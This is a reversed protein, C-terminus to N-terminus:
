DGRDLKQIVKIILAVADDLKEPKVKDLTDQPSHIFKTDKNSLFFAAEVKQKKFPAHDSNNGLMTNYSRAEIHNEEATKAIVTNLKENFTKKKIFGAKEVYALESGVMDVNIIYSRDKNTVIDEKHMTIYERSGYLGWEEATFWIYKLHINNTPNRQFYAALSLLIASGSGNDCAGPSNNVRQVFLSISILMIDILTLVLVLLNLTAIAGIVSVGPNFYSVLNLTADALTLLLILLFLIVMAIMIKTSARPMTSSISDSHATLYLITNDEKKHQPEIECLVNQGSSAKGFFTMKGDMLSKLFFVIFIIAVLPLFIGVYGNLPQVLRLVWNFLLVFLALMAYLFKRGTVMGTSWSIEETFPNLQMKRLFDLLFRTTEKEGETGMMRPQSLISHKLIEYPASQFKMKKVKTNSENEWQQAIDNLNNYIVDISYCTLFANNM